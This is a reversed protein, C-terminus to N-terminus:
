FDDDNDFDFYDASAQNFIHADQYENPRREHFNKKSDLGITNMFSFPNKTNFLKNYGLDVILQDATYEIYENMLESSMGILKVPIADTMFTKSIEVASNFIEYVELEPLRNLLHNYITVGLATHRGEDRAIFDNSSTLGNMFDKGKAKQKKLWFIAAFAGSFFVGEIIVFALVRYAFKKPSDIWEFAFDAMKKVSEVNEIANFLTDKEVPDSIINDLMLSYTEGHVNEMMMQFMYCIQIEMSTIDNLFRSSLNFNVIGDSAAFFALVRKIFLQEMENLTNYDEKDKSFDIEEAKWMMAQQEKYLDWFVKNKLPFVTFRREEEKLLPEESDGTKEKQILRLTKIVEEISDVDNDYKKVIRSVISEINEMTDTIFIRKSLKNSYNNVYDNVDRTEMNSQDLKTTM